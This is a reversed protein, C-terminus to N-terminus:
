TEVNLLGEREIKDFIGRLGKDGKITEKFRRSLQSVAGGKMGFWEGIEELRMGSYQHSLYICMKKYLTHDKGLVKVVAREIEELSPEKLVKKIAPINRKDIKRDELYEMRIRNIFDEGGLFTSAMVSKLPNRLEKAEGREVYEKYGRFGTRGEGGFDGLILEMTLWQPRKDKGVFYRYSSWTYESPTKVMGARVPNLHIYRSLEKCYADKDVLIGKFRGQFLHGFLSRKINFYTTYAGNIHHLIQSLNGRPTELLLHYHNGMLCYTHIIAGYRQHASELYSLYKERDRTSQFVMKRENGRSTVHYFAGPYEIRLPRSM